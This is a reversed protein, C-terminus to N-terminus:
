KLGVTAGDIGLLVICVGIIIFGVVLFAVWEIWSHAEAEEPEYLNSVPIEPKM